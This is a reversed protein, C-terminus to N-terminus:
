HVSYLYESLTHGKRPLHIRGIRLCERADVITVCMTIRGGDNRSSEPRRRFQFSVIKARIM